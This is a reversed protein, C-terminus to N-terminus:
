DLPMEFDRPVEEFITQIAIVFPPMAIQPLYPRRLDKVFKFKLGDDHLAPLPGLLTSPLMFGVSHGFLYDGKRLLSGRIRLCV